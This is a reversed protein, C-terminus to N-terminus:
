IAVNGKLGHCKSTSVLIGAHGLGRDGVEIKGDPNIYHTVSPTSQDAQSFSERFQKRFSLM